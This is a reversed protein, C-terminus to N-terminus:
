SKPFRSLMDEMEKQYIESLPGPWVKIVSGDTDILMTQPIVEVRYKELLSLDSVILVPFDLQFRKVFDATEEEGTNTVGYFILHDSRHKQYVQKWFEVNHECSPCTASFWFLIIPESSPFEVRAAKRNLDLGVLPPVKDEPNLIKFPGRTAKLQLHLKRNERVLLLIEIGMVM